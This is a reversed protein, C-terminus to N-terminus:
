RWWQYPIRNKDKYKVIVAGTETSVSFYTESFGQAVIRLLVRRNDPSCAIPISHVSGSNSAFATAEKSILTHVNTAPNFVYTDTENSPGTSYILRTNAAGPCWFFELTTPTNLVLTKKNTMGNAVYLTPGKTIAVWQGDPSLSSTTNTSVSVICQKTITNMHFWNTVPVAYEEPPLTACAPILLCLLALMFFNM